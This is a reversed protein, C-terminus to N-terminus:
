WLIGNGKQLYLLVYLPNHSEIMRKSARKKQSQMLILYKSDTDTAAVVEEGVIEKDAEVKVGV